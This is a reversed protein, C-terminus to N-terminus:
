ISMYGLTLYAFCGQALLYEWRGSPAVEGFKNEMARIGDTEERSLKVKVCGERHHWKCWLEDLGIKLGLGPFRRARKEFCSKRRHQRTDGQGTM